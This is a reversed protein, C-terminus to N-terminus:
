RSIFISLPRPHLQYCHAPSLVTLLSLFPSLFRRSDSMQHSPFLFDGQMPCQRPSFVLLSAFIMVIRFISYNVSSFDAPLNPLILFLYHQAHQTVKTTDSEQYDQPSYGVLSRQGHFEGPLFIATTQWKRRWPIKGVWPQFRLRM